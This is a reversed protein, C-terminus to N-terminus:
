GLVQLRALRPLPRPKPNVKRSQAKAWMQAIAAAAPSIGPLSPAGPSLARPSASTNRPGVGAASM